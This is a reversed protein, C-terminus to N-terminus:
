QYLGTILGVEVYSTINQYAQPNVTYANQQSYKAKTSKSTTKMKRQKKKGTKPILATNSISHTQYKREKCHHSVTKSNPNTKKYTKYFEGKCVYIKSMETVPTINQQKLGM